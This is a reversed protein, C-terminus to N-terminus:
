SQGESVLDWPLLPAVVGLRGELSTLSGIATIEFTLVRELMDFQLGKPNNAAVLLHYNGPVLLNAPVHCRSRYRGPEIRVGFQRQSDPLASTFVTSSDAEANLRFAIQVDVKRQVIFEIELIFEKDADVRGVVQGGTNLSRVATLVVDQNWTWASPRVWEPTLLGDIALYQRIIEHTHGEATVRGRDILIAKSTLKAVANM